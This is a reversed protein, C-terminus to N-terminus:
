LKATVTTSTHQDDSLEELLDSVQKFQSIHMASAHVGELRMPWSICHMHLQMQTNFPPTMFGYFVQLEGGGQQKIVEQGVEYMHKVLPLDTKKLSTWARIRRKPIVLYHHDAAPFKDKIVILSDDEYLPDVPLRGDLMMVFVNPKLQCLAWNVWVTTLTTHHSVVSGM